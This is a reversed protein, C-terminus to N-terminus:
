PISYILIMSPIEKLVHIQYMTTLRLSPAWLRNDLTKRSDRGWAKKKVQRHTLGSRRIHAEQDLTVNKEVKGEERQRLFNWTM